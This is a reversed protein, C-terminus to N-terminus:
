ILRPPATSRGLAPWAFEPPNLFILAYGEFGNLWERLATREDPHLEKIIEQLETLDNM